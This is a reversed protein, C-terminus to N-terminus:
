FRSNPFDSPLGEEEEEEEEEEQVDTAPRTSDTV